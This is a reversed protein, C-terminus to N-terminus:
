QLLFVPSHQNKEVQGVGEDRGGKESCGTYPFRGGKQFFQIKELALLCPLLCVLAGRLQNKINVGGEVCVIKQGKINEVKGILDKKKNEDRGRRLKEEAGM